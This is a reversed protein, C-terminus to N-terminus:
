KECFRIFRIFLTFETKSFKSKRDSLTLVFTSKYPSGRKSPSDLLNIKSAVIDYMLLESLNVLDM